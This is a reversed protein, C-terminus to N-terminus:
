AAKTRELVPVYGTVDVGMGVLMDLLFEQEIGHELAAKVSAKVKAAYKGKVAEADLDESKKAQANKTYYAIVADYFAQVLTERGVKDSDKFGARYAALDIGLEEAAKWARKDSYGYRNNAKDWAVPLLQRLVTDFDAMDPKAMDTVFAVNNAVLGHFMASITTNRKLEVAKALNAKISGVAILKFTM